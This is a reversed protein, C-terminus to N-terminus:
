SDTGRDDGSWRRQLQQLLLRHQSVLQLRLCLQKRLCLLHPGPQGTSLLLQLFNQTLQLSSQLLLLLPTHLQGILLLPHLLVNLYKGHMNRVFKTFLVLLVDSVDPSERGHM